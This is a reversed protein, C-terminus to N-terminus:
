DAPAPAVVCTRFEERTRNREKVTQMRVKPSAYNESECHEMESEIDDPLARQNGKVQIVYDAEKEVIKKVTEKQCHMADATVVGGKLHLISLLEQLAPIENTKNDM